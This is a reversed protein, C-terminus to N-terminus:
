EIQDWLGVAGIPRKLYSRWKGVAHFCIIRNGCQDRNFINLTTIVATTFPTRRRHEQAPLVDRADALM